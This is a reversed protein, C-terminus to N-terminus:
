RLRSCNHCKNRTAPLSDLTAVLLAVMLRYLDALTHSPGPMAVQVEGLGALAQRTAADHQASNVLFTLLHGVGLGVM